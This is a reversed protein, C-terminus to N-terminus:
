KRGFMKKFFSPVLKKFFSRIPLMSKPPAQKFRPEPPVYKKEDSKPFSARTVGRLPTAQPSIAEDGSLPTLDKMNKARAKEMEAIEVRLFPSRLKEIAGKEFDARTLKKTELTAEADIHVDVVPPKRPYLKELRDLEARRVLLEERTPRGPAAKWSPSKIIEMSDVDIQEMELPTSLSGLPTQNAFQLAVSAPLGNPYLRKRELEIGVKTFDEATLRKPSSIESPGAPPPTIEPHLRERETLIANEAFDARSLRRHLVDNKGDIVVEDPNEAKSLIYANIEDIDSLGQLPLSLSEPPTDLPLGTEPATPYSLSETDKWAIDDPDHTSVTDQWVEDNNIEDGQIGEKNM